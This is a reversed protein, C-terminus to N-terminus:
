DDKKEKESLHYGFSISVAAVWCCLMIVLGTNM